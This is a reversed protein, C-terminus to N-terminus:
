VLRSFHVYTCSNVHNVNPVHDISFLLFIWLALEVTFRAFGLRLFFNFDIDNPRDTSALHFIENKCLFSTM